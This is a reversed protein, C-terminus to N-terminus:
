PGDAPGGALDLVLLALARAASLVDDVAVSEDPAHARGSEGPGYQVTPIGAGALLRLDSGYPAGYVDASGAGGARAHAARVAAVLPHDPDTRGSAFQGGWWQVEVPHDALWPDTSGVAAVAAELQARAHAVDEDLAVGLRGEAVLLDPVTSAWDGARVTGLSIPYALPWRSMLPDAAANRAAELRTLAALVPVLKDIASVGETRRSAHTAAGHVLLRFTLAGGNAAVVDLDTPEPVICADARVGQRLLAYTGLGGDEEGSVPALLVDGRLVVGAARVARVAYWAAVLGAKMDCAGRAVLCERGDVIRLVPEFPDGSWKAPDGPPVVDTHGNLLLTPGDGVGALRAVVGVGATRDVEMGPFDPEAALAQPDIDFLDVDLGEARWRDALLRQIENEAASGGVSPIRLLAALDGLLAARSDDVAQLVRARPDIAV